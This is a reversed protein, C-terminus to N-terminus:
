ARKQDARGCKEPLFIFNGSPAERLLVVWALWQRPLHGGESAPNGGTPSSSSRNPFNSARRRRRRRSGAKSGRCRKLTRDFSSRTQREEPEPRRGPGAAPASPKSAGPNRRGKRPGTAKGFARRGLRHMSADEEDRKGIKQRPGDWSGGGGNKEPGPVRPHRTGTFGGMPFSKQPPNGLSPEKMISDGLPAPVEGLRWFIKKERGM